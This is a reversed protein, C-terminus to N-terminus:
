DPALRWEVGALAGLLTLAEKADKWLAHSPIDLFDFRHIAKEEIGMARMGLFVQDLDGALVQVSGGEAAVTEGMAAGNIKFDMLHSHGDSVYNRGQRIGECWDAYTLKGGLKM